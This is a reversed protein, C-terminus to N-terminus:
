RRMAKTKERGKEEQKDTRNGVKNLNSVTQVSNRTDDIDIRDPVGDNDLDKEKKSKNYQKANILSQNIDKYNKGLKNLLNPVKSLEENEELDKLTFNNLDEIFDSKFNQEWLDKYNSYTKLDTDTEIDSNYILKYSDEFNIEQVDEYHSLQFSILHKFDKDPIFDESIEVGFNKFFALTDEDVNKLIHNKNLLAAGIDLHLVGLNNEKAYEEIYSTNETYTTLKILNSIEDRDIKMSEDSIFGDFDGNSLEEIYAEITISEKGELFLYDSNLNNIQLENVLDYSVQKEYEITETYDFLETYAISCIFNDEEIINKKTEEQTLDHGFENSSFDNFVAVFKNFLDKDIDKGIEINKELFLNKFNGKEIMYNKIKLSDKLAYLFEKPENKIQKGWSDLYVLHNEKQNDSINLGLTNCMFVSNMEVKMEEKSYNSDAFNTGLTRNLRKSHGTAHGLEHLLVAMREEYSIFQEKLPMTVNDLSPNYFANESHKEIFGIEMNDILNKEFGNVLDNTALKKNFITIPLNESLSLKNKNSIINKANFVHFTKSIASKKDLEKTREQPSMNKIKEQFAKENWPKKTEKNIFTFFQIPIGKSGKEIHYDNEKAQNFTAFRPDDLNNIRSVLELYLENMGSYKHGTFANQSELFDWSKSWTSNERKEIDNLFENLFEKEFKTLNKFEDFNNM